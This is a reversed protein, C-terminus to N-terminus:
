CTGAGTPVTLPLEELKKRLVAPPDKAFWQSLLYRHDSVLECVRRALSRLPPTALRLSWERYERLAWLCMIWAEEGRWLEGEDSVVILREEPHFEEIGPFRCAIEPSQFPIFSLPVFAAQQGLWVRCRRCFACKGDYLVFLTRM